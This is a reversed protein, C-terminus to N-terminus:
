LKKKKNSLDIDFLDITEGETLIALVFATILYYAAFGAVSLQRLTPREPHIYLLVISRLFVGALIVSAVSMRWFAGDEVSTSLMAYVCVGLVLLVSVSLGWAVVKKLKSSLLLLLAGIVLLGMAPLLGPLNQDMASSMSKYVYLSSLSLGNGIGNLLLSGIYLAKHKAGAWHCFMAFIMLLIGFLVGYWPSDSLWRAGIATFPLLAVMMLLGSALAFSLAARSPNPAEQFSEGIRM